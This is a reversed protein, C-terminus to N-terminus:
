LLAEAVRLARATPRVDHTRILRAGRSFAVLSAALSAELREDVPLGLLKEFLSKRSVGILVPYGRAALDGTGRLLQLNHELTKGFGIGPDIAIRDQDVGCAVAGRAAEELYDGVERVVDQYRPHEQMTAPEGLMHMVILSADREAALRGLLPLGDADRLRLGTVDNIVLAGLDLAVGAVEVKSTDVSLPIDVRKTLEELVPRLREIEEESGTPPAGPRTSEAGLDLLDAGEEVLACAHAVADDPRLWRGGDSFSDPTVNVVGMVLARKSLDYLQDGIRFRFASEMM